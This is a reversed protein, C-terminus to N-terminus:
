APRAGAPVSDRARTLAAIAQERTVSPFRSVFEDLTGGRALHDFLSRVPVLTGAFVPTDGVDDPAKHVTGPSPASATTRKLRVRAGTRGPTAGSTGPTLNGGRGQPAALRDPADGPAAPGASTTAPVGVTIGAGVLRDYVAAYGAQSSVKPLGSKGHVPSAEDPVGMSRIWDLLRGTKQELERRERATWPENRVRAADKGRRYTAELAYARPRTRRRRGLSGRTSNPLRVDELGDEIADRIADEFAERVSEPVQTRYWDTLREWYKGRRYDCSM